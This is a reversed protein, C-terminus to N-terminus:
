GSGRGRPSRPTQPLAGLLFIAIAEDIIIDTFSWLSTPLLGIFNTPLLGIFNTPLLGIFNTPLLGYHHRYFVLLIQRYFVL